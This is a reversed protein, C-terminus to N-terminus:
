SYSTISSLMNSMTSEMSQLNQEMAAYQKVLRERYREIQEELKEIRDNASEKSKTMSEQKLAITGNSSDTLQDLKDVLTEGFGKAYTFTTSEGPSLSGSNVTLSLGTAPGDKFTVIEGTQTGSYWEDSGSLKIRYTNGSTLELDYTGSQTESTKRGLVIGNKSSVGKTAFLSIVDEINTKLAKDLADSDITFNGTQYDTKIGISILNKYKGTADTFQQRFASSITNLISSVTMDGALAGDEEDEDESTARQTNEDVFDRISNYADIIEQIKKKIADTDQEVSIKVEESSANKLNITAGKIIDDVDNSDSEVNIGDVSFFANSGCSLVNNGASGYSTREMGFQTDETGIAVSLKSEGSIKDTIQLSGDELFEADVTGNFAKKVSDIFDQETMGSTKIINKSIESGDHDTGKITIFEGNNLSSIQSFLDSESTYAQSTIDKTGDADTIFGLDQLTSGSIDKYEIGSEGEKKSSLVLRYNSDSLKLVSASVDLYNGDEDTANNIKSRLDQITDDEDIDIEVGDISITGTGIGFSSLADTQNTIQNENSILKERSAKHYVSLSYEGSQCGTGATITAVDEDSSTISYLDFDEVTSLAEIKSSLTSILSKYKSYASIKVDYSDRRTEVPEVKNTYELEVLQEILSQTDIGSPGNVSIGM